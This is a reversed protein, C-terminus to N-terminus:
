RNQVSEVNNRHADSNSMLTHLGTRILHDIVELDNFGMISLFGM